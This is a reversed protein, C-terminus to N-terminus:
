IKKFVDKYDKEVIHVTVNTLNNNTVLRDIDDLQICSIETDDVYDFRFKNFRLTNASTLDNRDITTQEGKYKILIETLYIDLGRKSVEKPDELILNRIHPIGFSDLTYLLIDTM